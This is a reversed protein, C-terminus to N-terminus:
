RKTSRKTPSSLSKGGESASREKRDNYILLMSVISMIVFSLGFGFAVIGHWAAKAPSVVLEEGFQHWLWQGAEDIHRGGFITLLGFAMLRLQGMYTTRDFIQGPERNSNKPDWKKKGRDRYAFFIAGLLVFLLFIEDKYRGIM